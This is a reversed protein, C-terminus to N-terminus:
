RRKGALKSTLCYGIDFVFISLFLLWEGTQLSIAFATVELFPRYSLIRSVLKNKIKKADNLDSSLEDAYTAALFILLMPIDFVPFGIISLIVFMFFLGFRHGAADIKGAVLNGLVAAMWLNAVLSSSVMVYAILFGYVIGFPVSLTKMSKIHKDEINDVIKIIIGTALAAALINATM